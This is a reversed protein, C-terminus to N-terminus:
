IRGVGSTMDRTAGGENLQILIKRERETRRTKRRMARKEGLDALGIEIFFALLPTLDTSSTPGKALPFVANNEFTREIARGRERSPASRSLTVARIHDRVVM